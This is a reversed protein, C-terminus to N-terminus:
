ETPTFKAGYRVVGEQEYIRRVTRRVADGVAVSEHDCDTLQAPMLVSGDGDRADLRVLAAGYAGDRQQLEVFEPPAGGHGIVTRAAVTGVSSLPAREFEVREHCDDCAGEGPFSLAGCAPCRGATLAYRSDLTRRWTPLSVNAGGGAVDGDVVIGRKRLSEVYSVREGDDLTAAEDGDLRGEFAFAVAGGGSGYFAALVSEDGGTELAAVLGIAATAAGADGIRDVVTGEAVAGNSVVGEGAIRYPMSGNPQHLSAADIRDADLGLDAIADRTTERIAAREYGTIDLSAVEEEAAERFRVGPSEDTASGVGAFTVAADDDVLFAAAGAGFAHDSGAPDGVPADAVVALVTGEANLATELADAGAATSQGHHWTRTESSLGLAQVVRPALQEEAVPPTTTAFAVADVANPSMASNELARGAAAVAMTVADEDGAPVAKADIGRGQFAGWAERVDEATVRGRPVYVGAAAIGRSSM